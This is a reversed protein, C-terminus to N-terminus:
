FRSDIHGARIHLQGREDRNFAVSQGRAVLRRQPTDVAVITVEMEPSLDPVSLHGEGQQVRLTLVAPTTATCGSPGCHVQGPAPRLVGLGGFLGGRVDIVVELLRTPDVSRIELVVEGPLAARQQGALAAPILLFLGLGVKM